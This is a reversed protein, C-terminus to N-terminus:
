SFVRPQATGPRAMLSRIAMVPKPATDAAPQPTAAENRVKREPARGGQTGHETASSGAAKGINAAAPSKGFISRVKWRARAATASANASAPSDTKGGPKRSPTQRPVVTAQWNFSM